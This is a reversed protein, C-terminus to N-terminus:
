ALYVIAGGALPRKNIRPIQRCMSEVDLYRLFVKDFTELVRWQPICKIPVCIYPGLIPEASVGREVRVRGGKTHAKLVAWKNPMRIVM